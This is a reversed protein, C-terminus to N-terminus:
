RYYSFLKLVFLSLNNSPPFYENFLSLAAADKNFRDGLNKWVEPWVLDNNNVLTANIMDIIPDNISMSGTKKSGIVQVDPSISAISIARNYSGCSGLIALKVSPTLRRMTKDLHYSHGRHVLITPQLSKQSLFSILSDQAKLDMEQKIDLPRNAYIMLPRDSLSRISVWYDNKSIEWKTKDAYLRLFNDFSAAGDEDGYFLILQVIEGKGNELSNRKLIEYNGLRAWLVQMGDKKKALNLLELLIGYLRIGLYKHGTTSRRLNTRLEEQIVESMGSDTALATFSDAIDMAMELGANTDTDIGEAFRKMLERMREHPMRRFFDGLVNYNAALRVFVRFNDYQVIDFLSDVSQDGFHAILRKYLGLYSSTYLDEGCSTIIYYIDEPRLGSVSAFRVADADNHRDNIENVFFSLSKKKIGDRLPKLFISSENSTVSEKLTNVLLQFYNIVATRKELIEAPTIKHDAIQMVFPVLESVSKDNSISVLKKLYVNKTSRIRDQIGSKDKNLYYVLRLPDYAAADLLLSDAFRFGPRKEVFQVIFEPSSAVRKYVAIDDLVSYENYQSFATALLQSRPHKLPVLLQTFPKHHLLAALVSKYSQVSGPIDYIDLKRQVLNRNLENIFYYLSREAKEKERTMVGAGEYIYSYIGNVESEFYDALPYLITPETPLKRLNRLFKEKVDNVKTGTSVSSQAFVPYVRLFLFPIFFYLIPKRM